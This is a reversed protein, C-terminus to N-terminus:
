AKDEPEIKSQQQQAPRQQMPMHQAPPPAEPPNESLRRQVGDWIQATGVALQATWDVFFKRLHEAVVRRLAVGNDDRDM